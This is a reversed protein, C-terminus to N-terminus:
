RCKQKKGVHQPASTYHVLDLELGNRKFGNKEVYDPHLGVKMLVAASAPNEPVVEATFVAGPYREAARSAVARAAETAYGHGWHARSLQYYLGFIHNEKDTCVCGAMGIAKKNCLIVFRDPFERDTRSVQAAIYKQCRDIDVMLPTYTYKIVNFDSWVDLLDRAFSPDFLTLELRETKIMKLGEMSRRM